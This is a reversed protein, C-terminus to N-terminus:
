KCHHEFGTERLQQKTSIFDPDPSLRQVNWVFIEMQIYFSGIHQEKPVSDTM